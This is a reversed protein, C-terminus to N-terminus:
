AQEQECPRDEVVTGAGHLMPQVEITGPDPSDPEDFEVKVARLAKPPLALPLSVVPRGAEQSQTWAHGEGGVLVAVPKAGLPLYVKLLKRGIPGNPGLRAAGIMAEPMRGDRRIGIRYQMTAESRVTGDPAPCRGVDYHFVRGITRDLRSGDTNILVSEVSHQKAPLLAHGIPTAALIRQVQPDRVWLMVRRQFQLRELTVLDVTFADEVVSAAIAERVERRERGQDAEPYMDYIGSLLFKQADPVEEGGPLTVERGFMPATGDVALVGDLRAGAKKEYSALWARAVTPFDATERQRRLDEGAGSDVVTVNGDDVRVVGWLDVVGGTATMQNPTQVAVLYFKAVDEGLLTPAYDGFLQAADATSALLDIQIETIDVKREISPLVWAGEGARPATALYARARSIDGASQAVISDMDALATLDFAGHSLETDIGTLSSAIVDLGDVASDSALIVARAAQLSDGAKPVAALARWVWSETSGVAAQTSERAWGVGEAALVPDHARLREQAYFLADQAQIMHRRAEDFTWAGWAGIAVLVALIVLGVRRGM